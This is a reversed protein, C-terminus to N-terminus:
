EVVTNTEIETIEETSNSTEVNSEETTVQEAEETEEESTAEVTVNSAEDSAKESQNDEVETIIDVSVEETTLKDPLSHECSSGCHKCRMNCAMTVEWVCTMPYGLEKMVIDLYRLYEKAMLPSVDAPFRKEAYYSKSIPTEGIADVYCFWYGSRCSTFLLSIACMLYFTNM